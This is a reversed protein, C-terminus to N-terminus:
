ILLFFIGLVAFGTLFGSWVQGPDHSNLKLRSSLILGATLITSVLYWVLSSSMKLSLLAVVANLAGAAVAHISIKYWFNILTVLIVLFTSAFVFSKLFVPIQYRFIVFSTVSYLVSMMILPVAREKKDEIAYTSILNRNKFFPLLILPIFVNNIFVILFLIKKVEIPMYGLLTPATFIIGLGYLPMLLPHFVISIFKAVSTTLSTNKEQDM